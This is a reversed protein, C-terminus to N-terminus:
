VYAPIARSAPTWIWHHASCYVSVWSRGRRRAFGGGGGPQWDVHLMPRYPSTTAYWETASCHGRLALRSKSADKRIPIRIPGIAWPKLFWISPSARVSRRRRTLRHSCVDHPKNWSEMTKTMLNYLIYLQM